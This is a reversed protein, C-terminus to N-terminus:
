KIGIRVRPTPKRRAPPSGDKPRLVELILRRKKRYLSKEAAQLNKREEETKALAEIQERTMGGTKLIFYRIEERTFGARRMEGGIAAWNPELNDDSDRRMLRYPLSRVDYVGHRDGGRGINKTVGSRQHEDDSADSPNYTSRHGLEVSSLDLNEAVNAHLLKPKHLKLGFQREGIRIAATRLFASPNRARRWGEEKLSEAVGLVFEAPLRGLVDMLDRWPKAEPNDGLTFGDASTLVLPSSLERCREMLALQMERPPIVRDECLPERVPLLLRNKM